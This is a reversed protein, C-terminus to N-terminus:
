AQERGNRESLFRKYKVAMAVYVFAPLWDGLIFQVNYPAYNGKMIMERLHNAGAMILFLSLMTVTAQMFSGRYRYSLLGLIGLCGNYLGVEVQFPSGTPWGINKAIYDSFFVHPVFGFLLLGIGIGVFVVAAYFEEFWRGTKRGKFRAVVLGALLGVVLMTISIM